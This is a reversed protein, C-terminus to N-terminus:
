FGFSNAVAVDGAEAFCDKQQTDRESKNELLYPASQIAKKRGGGISIAVTVIFTDQSSCTCRLDYSLPVLQHAQSSHRNVVSNTSYNLPFGQTPLISLLKLQFSAM